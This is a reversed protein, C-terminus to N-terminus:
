RSLIGSNFGIAAGGRTPGWISVARSMKQLVASYSSDKVDSLRQLTQPKGLLLLFRVLPFLILFGIFSRPHLNEEEGKSLARGAFVLNVWPKPAFNLLWVATVSCFSQFVIGRESLRALSWAVMIRLEEENLLSVLGQSLIV